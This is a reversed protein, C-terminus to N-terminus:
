HERDRLGDSNIRVYSGGEKRYWGEINPRLSYGLSPDLAYFQPYSYGVIRLGVEAAFAGMLVGFMILGLRNLIKRFKTQRNTSSRIGASHGDDFQATLPKNARLVTFLYIPRSRDILCLDLATRLALAHYGNPDAVVDKAEL